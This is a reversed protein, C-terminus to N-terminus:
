YYNKLTKFKNTIDNGDHIIKGDKIVVNGVMPENDIPFILDKYSAIEDSTAKEYLIKCIQKQQIIIYTNIQNIVASVQSRTIKFKDAIEGYMKAAKFMEYIGEYEQYTLGFKKNEINLLRM